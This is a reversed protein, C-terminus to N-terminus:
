TGRRHSYAENLFSITQPRSCDPLIGPSFSRLSWQTIGEKKWDTGTPPPLSDAGYDQFPSSSTCEGGSESQPVRLQTEFLSKAAYLDLHRFLDHCEHDSVTLFEGGALKPCRGISESTACAGSLPCDADSVEPSRSPM